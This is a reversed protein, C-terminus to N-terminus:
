RVRGSGPLRPASPDMTRQDIDKFPTMVFGLVRFRQRRFSMPSDTAYGTAGNPPIDISSPM